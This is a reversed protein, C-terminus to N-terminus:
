DGVEAVGERLEAPLQTARELPEIADRVGAVEVQRPELDELPRAVGRPARAKGLEDRRRLHVPRHEAGRPPEAARRAPRVYSAGAAVRQPDLAEDRDEGGSTRCSALELGIVLHDKATKM